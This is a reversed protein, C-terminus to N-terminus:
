NQSLYRILVEYERSQGKSNYFSVLFRNLGEQVELFETSPPESPLLSIVQPAGGLRLVRSLTWLSESSPDRAAEQPQSLRVQRSRSEFELTRSSSVSSPSPLLITSSTITSPRSGDRAKQQAEHLEPLLRQNNTVWLPAVVAVALFVIQLSSWL